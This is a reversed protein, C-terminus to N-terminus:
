RTKRENAPGTARRPRRRPGGNDRDRSDGYDRETPYWDHRDESSWCDNNRYQEDYATPGDRRAVGPVGLEEGTRAPFTDTEAPLGPEWDHRQEM